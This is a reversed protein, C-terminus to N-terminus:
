RLWTGMRLPQVGASTVLAMRYAMSCVPSVPWAMGTVPPWTMSPYLAETAKCFSTPILDVVAMHYMIPNISLILLCACYAKIALFVETQLLKFKGLGDHFM